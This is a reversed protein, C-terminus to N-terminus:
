SPVRETSSVTSKSSHLRATAVQALNRAANLDRDIVLGCGDCEYVRESLDLKGKVQGCGSCRKSSPYWREAVRVESGSWTAKYRVQRGFEYMGVDAIARALHHNGLMGSVNLDELVVVCPRESDPKTKAVIGSTAKHLTDGRVNAIRYHLRAIRRRTKERNRSGKQQRALQRQLRRLKKQARSLAKPNEYHIGDSCMALTKVGLDVGVPEGRAPTPELVEEEVQISVFWRGARESVTASLIKAGGTPLYGREKLRLRGLRPVQVSDEFVHISGTLRFSGLGAKRSKFRPFGVPGNLKGQQKLRVRRFFHAFARDLNRLAEQPACKSVGYMWALETKKLANLERHLDMATPSQGTAEYADIKRRLGWNYAYRAAGAHKACATRQRDNLDLETKYGRVTKM